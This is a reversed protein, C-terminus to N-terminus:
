AARSYSRKPTEYLSPSFFQSPVKRRRERRPIQGQYPLLLTPDDQYARRGLLQTAISRALVEALLSPVANGVQRRQSRPAGALDVRDPFTQLRCLERISLVRNKWHFPGCSPGPNAQITWSPRDKALKLLFTWYRSRWRFLPDGGGRSTHWLYNEGEPISPLLEAWKGRPALDEEGNPTLDALADWATLLPEGDDGHTPEPFKFETGDRAAILFLRERVQPVGFASADLVRWSPKYKAGTEANIEDVLRLLLTFGQDLNAYNLGRVNELLFVKPQAQKVVRM